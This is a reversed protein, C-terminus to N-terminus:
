EWNMMIAGIDLALGPGIAELSDPLLVDDPLVKIPEDHGEVFVETYADHVRVRTEVTFGAVIAEVIEERLTKKNVV